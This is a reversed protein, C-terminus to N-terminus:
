FTVNMRALFRRPQPMTLFDSRTFDTQSGLVEPDEGEYDTWLFLNRAGLTISASSMGMPAVWEPNLSYSVSLERFRWNDGRQYYAENVASANLDEGSESVFPGFRGLRQEDTLIDNRRIWREGTGFQRERFQDSNNYLIYDKMFDVQAYIRLSGFVSFTSNFNGEFGPNPNGIFQVSDTVIAQDNGVDYEVVTQTWYGFAPYGPIVRNNTGFPEVDGLDTVENHNTSVNARADWSFGDVDVLRANASFEWGSDVHPDVM